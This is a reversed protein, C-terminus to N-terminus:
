CLSNRKENKTSKLLNNVWVDAFVALMQMIETIEQDTYKKDAETNLIQKVKEFEM